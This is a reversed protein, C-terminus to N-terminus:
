KGNIQLAFRILAGRSTLGTKGRIRAIHGEVTRVSLHLTGAIEKDSLGEGILKVIQRERLSLLSLLREANRDSPKHPKERELPFSPGEILLSRPTRELHITFRCHTPPSGSGPAISVKAYGFCEGAASGIMSAEAQCLYPNEIPLSGFPCRPISVTVTSTSENAIVDGVWGVASRLWKVFHLADEQTVSPSHHLPALTKQSLELGISNGIERAMQEYLAPHLCEKARKLTKDVILQLFEQADLM